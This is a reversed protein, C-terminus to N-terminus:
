ATTTPENLVLGNLILDGILANLEQPDHHYLYQVKVTKGELVLGQPDIQFRYPDTTATLDLDYRQGNEVFRVTSYNMIGSLGPHPKHNLTIADGYVPLSEVMCGPGGLQLAGLVYERIALVSAALTDATTDSINTALRDTTVTDDLNVAKTATILDLIARDAETLLGSNQLDTLRKELDALHTKLGTVLAKDRKIISM